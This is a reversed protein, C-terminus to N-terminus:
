PALRDRIWGEATGRRRYRLRDHLRSPRGQWFEFVDPDVGYGGWNPPRPVDLGAFRGTMEAVREDLAARDAVVSSQESAWAGVRSERPRSAFYSDSVADPLPVAVGEVRVQRHLGLWSFLLAVRGNGAIETGKRSDRNTFFELRGEADVGRLLVNRVGPRGTADVTALAMSNFEPAGAAEADTLWRDLLLYPDVPADAELLMGRDYDIRHDLGPEADDHAPPDTTVSPLTSRSM